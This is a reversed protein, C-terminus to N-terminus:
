HSKFLHEDLLLFARGYRLTRSLESIAAGTIGSYNCKRSKNVFTHHRQTKYINSRIVTDIDLNRGTVCLRFFEALCIGM